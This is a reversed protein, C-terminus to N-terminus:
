ARADPAASTGQMSVERTSTFDNNSFGLVYGGLFAVLAIAAALSLAAGVRRRAALYPPEEGRDPLRPWRPHFSLRRGRRWWCTTCVSSGPENRPPFITAWSTM